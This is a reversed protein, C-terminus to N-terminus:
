GQFLFQKNFIYKINNILANDRVHRHYLSYRICSIFINSKNLPKYVKTTEYLVSLNKKMKEIWFWYGKFKHM